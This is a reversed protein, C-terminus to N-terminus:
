PSKRWKEESEKFVGVKRKLLQLVFRNVIVFIGGHSSLKIHSLFRNLFTLVREFVTEVVCLRLKVFFMLLGPKIGTISHEHFSALSIKHM